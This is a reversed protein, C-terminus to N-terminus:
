GIAALHELFLQANREAESVEMRQHLPLRVLSAAVKESVPCPTSTVGWRMGGPTLHLPVYHFTARVGAANLSRLLQDRLSSRELVVYYLHYAPVVGPAVHPTTFGLEEASPTLCADYTEHIARRRAQISDANELEHFLREALFDSMGFSSGLDQWNYKDVAGQLFARRDTGKDMVIRARELLGEDNVVLAGGEGCSFNKTAHFSLTSLPALTGLSRGRSSGALAHAADEVVVAGVSSAAESIAEIKAPLGAYHIPVVARTRKTLSAAVSDPDLGLSDPEIDAFRVVAGARVFALATTVFGFSPVIVEDGPNIEALIAAAELADTCSTTLLPSGSQGLASRILTSARRSWYGGASGDTFTDADPRLMM